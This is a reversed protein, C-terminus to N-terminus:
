AADRGGLEEDRFYRTYITELSPTEVALRLLKGGAGMVAAATESRVDRDTKLRWRNPGLTEVDTVGPIAKLRADLGSGEAEVDLNFTGGLVQRGLEEVSGLLV